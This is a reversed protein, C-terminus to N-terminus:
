GIDLGSVWVGFVGWAGFTTDHLQFLCIRFSAGFVGRILGELPRLHLKPSYM